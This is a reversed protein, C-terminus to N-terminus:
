QVNKLASPPEPTSKVISFSGNTELIVAEIQELSKYGQNRVAQLLEDHRIREKRLAQELPKGDHLVLVPEAKVLNGFRGIRVSIWAISYQLAILVIFAVVGEVLAVTKSLLVTSLASGLAVTVVLDFANMRALTRKGAIRLMLILSFYALVGVVLIRLVSPWDKFLFDDM